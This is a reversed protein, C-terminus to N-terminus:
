HYCVLESEGRKLMYEGGSSEPKPDGSLSDLIDIRYCMPGNKESKEISPLWSADPLRVLHSISHNSRLLNTDNVIHNNNQSFAICGAKTSAISSHSHSLPHPHHHLPLIQSVPM